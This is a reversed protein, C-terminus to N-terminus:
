KTLEQIKAILIEIEEWDGSQELRRILENLENNM